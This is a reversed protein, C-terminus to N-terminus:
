YASSAFRGYGLIDPRLHMGSLGLLLRDRYRHAHGPHTSLLFAYGGFMGRHHLLPFPIETFVLSFFSSYHLM